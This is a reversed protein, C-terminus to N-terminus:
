FSFFSRVDFNIQFHMIDNDRRNSGHYRYMWTSILRLVSPFNFKQCFEFIYLHKKTTIDLIFPYIYTYHRLLQAGVGGGGEVGCFNVLFLNPNFNLQFPLQSTAWISFNIWCDKCCNYFHIEVNNGGWSFQWNRNLDTGFCLSGHNPSRNKRWLRDQLTLYPSLIIHCHLKIASSLANAARM